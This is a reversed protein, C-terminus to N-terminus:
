APAAASGAAVGRRFAAYARLVEAPAETQPYHGIEPLEHIEAGPRLERLRDVVHKGSVPDLHGNIFSLPVHGDVLPTVWRERNTRRERMYRIIRHFNRLGRASSACEWFGDLEAESPKTNPGFVDSLGRGFRRRDSLRAVLFGIPSNLLKQVTRPHHTEPFIGGNLLCVSALEAFGGRGGRRERDRALLEQAVSDGLDHALVHVRTVVGLRALLAEAQDAYAFVSYPGQSPKDSFGFGVYDLAIVRYHRALEDWVHRWDWSSTPFGHLLLLPEGTGQERYYVRHGRWEFTQGAARWQAPSMSDSTVVAECDLDPRRPPSCRRAAAAAPVDVVPGGACVRAVLSV